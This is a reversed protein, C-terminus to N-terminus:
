VGSATLRIRSRIEPADGEIAVVEHDLRSAGEFESRWASLARAFPVLPAESAVLAVPVISWPGRESPKTGSAGLPQVEFDSAIWAEGALDQALRDEEWLRALIRLRAEVLAAFSEVPSTDLAVDVLALGPARLRGLVIGNQ